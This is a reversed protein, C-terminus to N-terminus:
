NNKECGTNRDQGKTQKLRKTRESMEVDEQDTGAGRIEETRGHDEKTEGPRKGSIKKDERTTEAGAEETIKKKNNNNEQCGRM